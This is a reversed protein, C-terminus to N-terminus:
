TKIRPALCSGDCMFLDMYQIIEGIREEDSGINRTGCGFHDSMM